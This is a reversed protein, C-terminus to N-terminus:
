PKFGLSDLLASFGPHGRLGDFKPDMKLWSLWGNRERYAHRLWALATEKEGMGAYAAAVHYSSVYQGNGTKTVADIRARAETRDGALASARAIMLSVAPDKGSLEFAKRFEGLADEYRGTQEYAWGLKIHAPVFNSDLQLADRYLDIARGYERSFYLIWGSNTRVILSLPDLSLAEGMEVEGEASRGQMTLYLAYWHHANSCSPNLTIALEFEKEVENWTRDYHMAAFALSAHADSLSNDIALAHVAAARSKTFAIGPPLVDYDGLMNYCDALGV